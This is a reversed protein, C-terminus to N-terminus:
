NKLPAGVQISCDHGPQGHAPNLKANPNTSGSNVPVPAAVPAASVANAAPSAVTQVVPQPAAAPASNLPAGVAIECRHGPQGHAPNLGSASTINAPQTTPVNQSPTIMQKTGNTGNVPVTLVPATMSDLPNIIAAPPAASKVPVISPDSAPSDNGSCSLLQLSGITIAIMLTKKM